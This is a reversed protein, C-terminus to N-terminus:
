KSLGGTEAATFTVATFSIGLVAEDGQLTPGGMKIDNINVIRSLKTLLSFFEGLRHYSGKVTVNVPVSYVIKSQHLSREGPKWTLIQLGSGLGKESVQRLLPSIEKEEPLQEALEELRAKLKQNEDRLIELKAAMSQSKTIESEQATIQSRLTKIQKTKPLIMLYSFLFAYILAPAIAVIVRAAKPTNAADLKM